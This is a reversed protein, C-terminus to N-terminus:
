LENVLSDVENVSQQIDSASKEADNALSDNTIIEKQAQAAENSSSGSCSAMLLSALAIGLILKRMGLQKQHNIICALLSSKLFM